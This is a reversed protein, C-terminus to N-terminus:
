DQDAAMRGPGGRLMRQRARLTIFLIGLIVLAGGALLRWGPRDGWALVGFVVGLVPTLQLYPMIGSVPHRQVLYFFLGHGVISALLASYAVSAWHPWEASRLVALQDQELLLSAAILLPLAIVATWAQFSLVGVGRIGRQYISSLAQFLASLLTIALVDSQRLVMPDFGVVLVGAFAVGVAALTKWGVRERLLLMALVVAMPIYTQQVIVVSSVDNSRGLAWFMLSFHLAGMSLCVGILRPWQGRPPLRLFPALAVLVLGFRLIMFLFPSFHRMGSAGAIFNGAWVVCIVLVLVLDRFSLQVFSMPWWYGQLDPDAFPRLDTAPSGAGPRAAM